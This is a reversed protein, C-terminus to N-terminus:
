DYFQPGHDLPDSYGHKKALSGTSDRRGITYGLGLAARMFAKFTEPEAIDVEASEAEKYLNILKEDLTLYLENLRQNKAEEAALQAAEPDTIFLVLEPDSPEFDLHEVSGM